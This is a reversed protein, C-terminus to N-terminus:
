ARAPVALHRAFWAASLEALADLAVPEDFRGPVVELRKECALRQMAARGAALLPPQGAGLVLLTPALVSALAAGAHDPRGECVVVAAVRGPARAAVRLVAVAAPGSGFLGTRLDQPETRQLAALLAAELLAGRAAALDVVDLRHRRVAAALAGAQASGAPAAIVVLGAAGDQHKGLM